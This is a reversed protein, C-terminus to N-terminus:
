GIVGGRPKAKPKAKKSSKPKLGPKRKAAEPEAKGAEAKMRAVRPKRVKVEVVEAAEEGMELGFLEALDDGELVRGTAPSPPTMALGSAARALLEQGDVDRLLFLLEPEADLRAGIGYLVAAVHKCM